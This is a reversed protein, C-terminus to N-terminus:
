AHVPVPMLKPLEADDDVVADDTLSPARVARRVTVSLAPLVPYRSIEKVQSAVFGLTLKPTSRNTLAMVVKLAVIVSGFIWDYAHDTTLPEPTVNDVGVDEVVLAEADPSPALVKRNVTVSLHPLVPYSSKTNVQSAVAGM